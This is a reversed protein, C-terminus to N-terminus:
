SQFVLYMCKFRFNIEFNDIDFSFTEMKEHMYKNFKLRLEM